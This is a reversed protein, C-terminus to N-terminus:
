LAEPQDINRPTGFFDDIEAKTFVKSMARLVAPKDDYTLPHVKSLLDVAQDEITVIEPDSGAVVYQACCGEIYYEMSAPSPDALTDYSPLGDIPDITQIALLGDANYRSSDIVRYITGAPISIKPTLYLNM